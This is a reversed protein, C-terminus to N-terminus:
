HTNCAPNRSGHANQISTSALTAGGHQATANITKKVIEKPANLFMPKIASHWEKTIWREHTEMPCISCTVPTVPTTNHRVEDHEMALPQLRFHTKPVHHSLCSTRLFRTKMSSHGLHLLCPHHFCARTTAPEDLPKSM